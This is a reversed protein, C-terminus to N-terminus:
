QKPAKYQDLLVKQAEITRQLNQAQKSLNVIITIYYHVASVVENIVEHAENLSLEVNKTPELVEVATPGYNIILNILDKFTSTSLVTEVYTSYHNEQLVPESQSLEHINCRAKKLKDVLVDMEKQLAGKSESIGEITMRVRYKQQFEKPPAGKVGTTVADILKYNEGDREVVRLQILKKVAKMVDTAGLSTGKGIDQVTKPGNDLLYKAINKENDSFDIM